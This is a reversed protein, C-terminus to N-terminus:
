PDQSYISPNGNKLSNQFNRSLESKRDALDTQFPAKAVNSIGVIKLNSTNLSHLSHFVQGYWTSRPGQESDKAFTLKPDSHSFPTM